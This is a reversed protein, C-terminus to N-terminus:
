NVSSYLWLLSGLFVLDIALESYSYDKVKYNPLLNIKAKAILLYLITGSALGVFLAGISHYLAGGVIGRTFIYGLAGALILLRQASISLCLAALGLFKM